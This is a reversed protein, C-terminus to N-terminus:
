ETFKHVGNRGDAEVHLSKFVFVDTKAEPINTPWVFNTGKPPM